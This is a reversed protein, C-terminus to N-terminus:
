FRCEGNYAALEADIEADTLGDARAQAKVEAILAAWPDAEPRGPRLIDSVLRGVRERRAPDGLAAAAEPSVPITIMVVDDVARRWRIRVDQEHDSALAQKPANASDAGLILRTSQGM